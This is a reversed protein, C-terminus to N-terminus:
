VVRDLTKRTYRDAEKTGRSPYYNILVPYRVSFLNFRTTTRPVSGSMTLPLIVTCMRKSIKLRTSFAFEEEIAHHVSM